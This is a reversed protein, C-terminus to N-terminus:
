DYPNYKISTVPQRCLPCDRKLWSIEPISEYCHGHLIHDCSLKIWVGENEMCVCCDGGEDETRIYRHVYCQDCWGEGDTCAVHKTCPCIQYTSPLQDVWELIKPLVSAEPDQITFSYTRLWIPKSSDAYEITVIFERDTDCDCESGEEVYGEEDCCDRHFPLSVEYRVLFKGIRNTMLSVDDRPCDCEHAAEDTTKSLGNRICKKYYLKFFRRAQERNRPTLTVTTM